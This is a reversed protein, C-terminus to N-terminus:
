DEVPKWNTPPFSIRWYGPCPATFEVPILYGDPSEVPSRTVRCAQKERTRENTIQLAVDTALPRSCSLMAGHDNVSATVADVTVKKGGIVFEVSVPVRIMVRQSRRREEGPLLQQGGAGQVTTKITV